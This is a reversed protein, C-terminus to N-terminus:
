RTGRGCRAAVSRCRPSSGGPSSASTSTRVADRGRSPSRSARPGTTSCSRCGGASCRGTTASSPTPSSRTGACRRSGPGCTRWAEPGRGFGLHPVPRVFDRPSGLVGDATLRAWFLLSASFQEGIEVARSVDVSGDPRRPTYNFECLGAHGTGANNWASSSELGAEDLREPVAIRWGPELESLLMALTASMVGGGVLVADFEEAAAM